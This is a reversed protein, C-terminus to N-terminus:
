QRTLSSRSLASSLVREIYDEFRLGANAVALPVLSTETLGPCTKVDLVVPGDDTVRMDVRGFDRVHLENAARVALESVSAEIADSARVFDYAGPSVRTQFDFVGDPTRIEIPPLAQLEQGIVPVAVEAGPVFRELLARDGHDFAGMAAAGLETPDGVVTLGLASGQAAPKIVLPYGLREAARRLAAGAGMHRVADSSVVYGPPTPIGARILLGKALGKDFCLRCTLPPSGTYPIGLAECALQITGDEGDRGHLAIFVLDVGDLNKTLENDVDVETVDHGLKKLAGAIHYGSRLSMDRELSRGGRVVAVRM